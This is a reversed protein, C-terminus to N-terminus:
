TFSCVRLRLYRGTGTHSQLVPDLLLFAPFISVSFLFTLSLFDFFDPPLTLFTLFRTFQLLFLNPHHMFTSTSQPYSLFDQFLPSSASYLCQLANGMSSSCESHTSLFLKIQLFVVQNPSGWIARTSFLHLSCQANLGGRWLRGIFEPAQSARNLFSIKENRAEGFKLLYEFQAAWATLFLSPASIM